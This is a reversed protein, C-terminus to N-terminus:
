PKQALEELFGHLRVEDFPWALEADGCKLVPIKLAYESMLVDSDAIDVDEVALYGAEVYPSFLVAAEDCLHCGVTTYLQCSLM